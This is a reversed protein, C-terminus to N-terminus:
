PAIAPVNEASFQLRCCAGATWLLELPMRERCGCAKRTTPKPSPWSHARPLDVVRGRKNIRDRGEGVSVVGVGEERRLVAVPGAGSNM